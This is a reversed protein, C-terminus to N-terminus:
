CIGMDGRAVLPRKERALQDLLEVADTLGPPTRM